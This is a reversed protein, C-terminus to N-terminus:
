HSAEQQLFWHRVRELDAASDVGAPHVERALAVQIHRGHHLARLQELQELQELPSPLWDVYEALFGARYAYLGIHRLWADTALTEPRAAFQERDWPIPARSFYLARGRVDRVVKVVNPNFLAEVDGIPEALTAIAAEPDDALRAAVQAISAPPLLPEDGQVNVVITEDALQLSQAVEALRDTGSPHDDRTMLAEGGAAEVAARIRADDTAVVVRAAGSDLARQWVRVVMPVGAIDALPKGPLRSSAYRAPIVVVFENM